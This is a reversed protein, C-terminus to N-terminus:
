YPNISINTEHDDLLFLFDVLLGFKHVHNKNNFICLNTTFYEGTFFLKLLM